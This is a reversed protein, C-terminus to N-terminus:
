SPRKFVQVDIQWTGGEVDLYFTGSNYVRTTDAYDGIENFLLDGGFEDDGPRMLSMIANTDGTFVYKLRAHAGDPISLEDTKKAGSGAFSRVTVWQKPKPPAKKAVTLTISRGAKLSAGEGPSQAIVTGPVRDSNQSVTKVRWDYDSVQEVDRAADVDQGTFDPVEGKASLTKVRATLEGNEDRVDALQSKLTDREGTVDALQQRADVASAKANDLEESARRRCRRGRDRGALRHHPRELVGLPAPPHHVRGLRRSAAPRAPHAM